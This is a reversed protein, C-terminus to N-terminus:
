KGPYSVFPLPSLGCNRDFDMLRIGDSRTLHEFIRIHHACVRMNLNQAHTETCVCLCWPICMGTAIHMRTKIYISIHMDHCAYILVCLVCVGLCSYWSMSIDPCCAQRSMCLAYQLMCVPPTVQFCVDLHVCSRRSMFCILVHTPVTIHTGLDCCLCAYQQVCIDRCMSIDHCECTNHCATLSTTDVTHQSTGVYM